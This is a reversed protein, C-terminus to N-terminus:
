PEPRVMRRPDTWEDVQAPDIGHSVAVERLTRDTAAAERVLASARDYGVRPTLATVATPPSREGTPLAESTTRTRIATLSDM